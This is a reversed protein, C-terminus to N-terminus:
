VTVIGAAAVISRRVAGAAHVAAELQRCSIRVAAGVPVAIVLVLPTPISAVPIILVLAAIRAAIAVPVLAVSIIAIVPGVSGGTVAGPVDVGPVVRRAPAM